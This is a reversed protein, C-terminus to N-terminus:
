ICALTQRAIETEEDTPIVMIKVPSANAQIETSSNIAVSNKEPDICIGLNELGQCVQLRVAPSNEGVGATFVL